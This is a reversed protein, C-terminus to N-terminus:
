GAVVTGAKSWCTGVPKKNQKKQNMQETETLNNEM